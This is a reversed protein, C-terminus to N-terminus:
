SMVYINNSEKRRLPVCSAWLVAASFVFLFYRKCLATSLSSPSLRVDYLAATTSVASSFFSTLILKEAFIYHTIHLGIFVFRNWIFVSRSMCCWVAWFHFYAANKLNGAQIYRISPVFGSYLSSHGQYFGRLSLLFSLLHLCALSFTRNKCKGCDHTWYRTSEPAYGLAVIHAFDLFFSLSAGFLVNKLIGKKYHSECPAAIVM